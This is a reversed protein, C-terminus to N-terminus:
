ATLDYAPSSVLNGLRLYGNLDTGFGEALTFRLMVTTISNPLGSLTHADSLGIFSNDPIVGDGPADFTYLAGHASLSLALLVGLPFLKTKM